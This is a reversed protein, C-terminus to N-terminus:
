RGVKRPNMSGPPRNYQYGSGGKPVRTEHNKARIDARAKVGRFTGVRPLGRRVRRTRSAM